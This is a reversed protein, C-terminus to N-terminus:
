PYVRYMVYVWTAIGLWALVKMTVRARKQWKNHAVSWQQLDESM